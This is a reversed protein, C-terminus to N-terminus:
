EHAYRRFFDCTKDRIPPADLARAQALIQTIIQAYQASTKRPPTKLPLNLERSFESLPSLRQDIPVLNRYVIFDNLFGSVSSRNYRKMM